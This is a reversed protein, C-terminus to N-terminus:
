DNSTQAGKQGLNLVSGDGPCMNSAMSRPFKESNDLKNRIQELNCHKKDYGVQAKHLLPLQIM